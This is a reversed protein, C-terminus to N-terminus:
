SKNNLNELKQIREITKFYWNCAEHVPKDFWKETNQHQCCNVHICNKRKPCKM